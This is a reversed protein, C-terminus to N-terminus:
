EGRVKIMGHFDALDTCKGARVVKHKAVDCRVIEGAAVYAQPGISIGGIVLADIGVVSGYKIVPSPEETEDWDRTPDAHLHATNGQFTVDDEVVTRDVLDGAVICNRGIVVDDFVQAGYLIRTNAGIRTGNAVRCYHDIVVNAEIVVDHEIICFAGIKVGDGIITPQEHIPGHGVCSNFGVHVAGLFKVDAHVFAGPEVVKSM